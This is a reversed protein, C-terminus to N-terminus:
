SYFFSYIFLYFLMTGPIKRGVNKFASGIFKFISRTLLQNYPEDIDVKDIGFTWFKIFMVTNLCCLKKSFLKKKPKHLMKARM